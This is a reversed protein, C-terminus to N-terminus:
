SYFKENMRSNEGYQVLKSNLEATLEALIDLDISLEQRIKTITGGYMDFIM